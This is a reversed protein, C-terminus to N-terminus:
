YMIGHQFLQTETSLKEKRLKEYKHINEIQLGHLLWNLEENTVTYKDSDIVTPFHFKSCEIRKYLLYFGDGDWYLMKIKDCHRNHFVFIADSLPSLNFNQEVISSLGDISKRMDVNASSIYVNSPKFILM